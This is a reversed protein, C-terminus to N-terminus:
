KNDDVGGGLLLYNAGDEFKGHTKARDDRIQDLANNKM